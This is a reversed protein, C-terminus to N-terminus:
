SLFKKSESKFKIEFIKRSINAKDISFFSIFCLFNQKFKNFDFQQLM